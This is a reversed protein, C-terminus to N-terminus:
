ADIEKRTAEFHKCEWKIHDSTSIAEMCYNCVRGVDQNYEAIENHAQSGGIQVVRLIGKREEEFTAAIQSVENDIEM